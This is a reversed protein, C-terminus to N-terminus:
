RDGCFEFGQTCEDKEEWTLKRYVRRGDDTASDVLIDDDMLAKKYRTLIRQTLRDRHEVNEPTRGYYEFKHDHEHDAEDDCSQTHARLARKEEELKLSWAEHGSADDDAPQDRGRHLQRLKAQVQADGSFDSDRIASGLAHSRALNDQAIMDRLKDGQSARYHRLNIFRPRLM